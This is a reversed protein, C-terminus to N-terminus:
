TRPGGLYVQRNAGTPLCILGTALPDAMLAGVGGQAIQTITSAIKAAAAIAKQGSIPIETSAAESATTSKGSCRRSVRLIRGNKAATSRVTTTPTATTSATTTVVATM